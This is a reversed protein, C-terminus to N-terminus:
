QIWDFYSGNAITYIDFKVRYLGVSNQLETPRVANVKVSYFKGRM